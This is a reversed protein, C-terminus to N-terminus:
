SDKSMTELKSKIIRRLGLQRRSGYITLAPFGRITMFDFERM